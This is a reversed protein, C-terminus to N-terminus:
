SRGGVEWQTPHADTATAILADFDAPLEIAERRLEELFRLESPRIQGDGYIMKLLYYKESEDIRGDQLFVGKLVPFFLADFEDCVEDSNVLLEVLFRVDDTNLQGDEAIFDQIIVAENPTIKRDELVHNLLDNLKSM